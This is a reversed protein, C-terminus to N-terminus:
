KAKRLAMLKSVIQSACVRKPMCELPESGDKTVLTVINTDSGFTSEAKSVDNAIIMDCGKRKLKAQANEIVDNTEAAFGAVVQNSKAEKALSALIDKTEELELSNLPETSKKMKHDSTTKPRYDCVAAALIAMDCSKFAEATQEYMEEASTVHIVNVNLPDELGCPGAILTVPCGHAAAASALAYGMKGSSANELYRVPDIHEQTPGATIVFSPAQGETQASGLSHLLLVSLCYESIATVSALKGEGISGCALRGEGPGAIYVGRERLIEVNAQTAPNKWMNTNMAPAVVVPCTCALLTSTLADDAIGHAMKAMVNATAPCVVALSAWEALEIHAIPTNPNNFLTTVVPHGSLAEFTQVGVMKTASETMCVRVDCGAKQFNRLVECAKYAAIGGTVFLAVHNTCGHAELYAALSFTSSPPLPAHSTNVKLDNSASM